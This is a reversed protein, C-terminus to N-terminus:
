LSLPPTLSPFKNRGKHTVGTGSGGGGTTTQRHKPFTCSNSIFYNFPLKVFWSVERGGEGGERERKNLAAEEKL